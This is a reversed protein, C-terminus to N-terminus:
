AILLGSEIVTPTRSGDLGALLPTLRGADGYYVMALREVAFVERIVAAATSATVAGIARQYGERDLVPIGYRDENIANTLKRKPELQYAYRNAFTENRGALRVQFDADGPFRGLISLLEPVLRHSNEGAPDAYYAIRGPRTTAPVLYGYAGYCWGNKNRLVEFITGESSGLADLILALDFRRPDAAAIGTQSWILRDNTAGPSDVIVTARTDLFPRESRLQFGDARRGRTFVALARELDARPLDSIATAFLVGAGRVGEFYRVVDARTLRELGARSGIKGQTGAGYVVFEHAATLVREPNQLAASLSNLEQRIVLACEEEPFSANEVVSAVLAIVRDLARTFCSLSITFDTESVSADVTAGLLDLQQLIQQRTMAPTGRFLTKAAVRATGMLGTPEQQFGGGHFVLQLATMPVRPDHEYYLAGDRIRDRFLPAAANM